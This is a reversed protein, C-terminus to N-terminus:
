LLKITPDLRYQNQGNGEMKLRFFMLCIENCLLQSAPAHTCACTKQHSQFQTRTCTRCLLSGTPSLLAAGPVTSASADHLSTASPPSNYTIGPPGTSSKPSALRVGFFFLPEMTNWTYWGRVRPQRKTMVRGRSALDARWLTEQPATHVSLNHNNIYEIGNWGMGNYLQVITVAMRSGM